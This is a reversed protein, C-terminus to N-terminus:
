EESDEQDLLWTCWRWELIEVTSLVVPVIQLGSCLGIRVSALAVQVELEDVFRHFTCERGTVSNSEIYVHQM